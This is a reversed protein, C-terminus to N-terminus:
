LRCVTRIDCCRPRSTGSGESSADTRLSVTRSPLDASSLLWPLHKQLSWDYLWFSLSVSIKCLEITSQNVSATESSELHRYRHSPGIKVWVIRGLRSFVVVVVNRITHRFATLLISTDSGWIPGKASLLSCKLFTIVHASPCWLNAAPTNM